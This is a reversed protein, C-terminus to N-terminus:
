SGRSLAGIRTAIAEDSAFIVGRHNMETSDTRNLDLANGHIDTAIAGLETFICATAAFDWLSGGGALGPFKFYCAPANDLVECANMVGGRTVEVHLGTLDRDRAVQELAKVIDDHDDRKLFSRDAFMTLTEGGGEVNAQIRWRHGNRFAGASTIAHRLTGHVPDHVVGIHPTGDRGVLGISVSYGPRGEIFPLTGDLPDICWFYDKSLRSRDDPQEESLLGLDFRDLTPVIAELIIAEARRDIETVVQSALSVGDDKLEVEVPRSVAIMQSAETAAAIAVDALEELDKPSLMM